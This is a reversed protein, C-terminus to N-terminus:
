TFVCFSVIDYRLSWILSGSVEQTNITTRMFDDYWTGRGFGWEGAIFAKGNSAATKADNGHAFASGGYYHSTFIDIHPSDWSARPIRGMGGITGDM